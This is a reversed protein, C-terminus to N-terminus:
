PPFSGCMRVDANYLCPAVCGGGGGSAGGVRGAVYRPNKHLHYSFVDMEDIVEWTTMKDGQNYGYEMDGGAAQHLKCRVPWGDVTLQVWGNEKEKPTLGM